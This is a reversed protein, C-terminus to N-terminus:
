ETKKMYQLKLQGIYTLSDQALTISDRTVTTTDSLKQPASLSGGEQIAKAYLTQAILALRDFHEPDFSNGAKRVYEEAKRWSLNAAIITLEGAYRSGTHKGIANIILAEVLESGTRYFKSDYWVQSLKNQNSYADNIQRLDSIYELSNLDDRYTFLNDDEPKVESAEKKDEKSKEETPKRLTSRIEEIKSKQSNYFAVRDVPSSGEPPNSNLISIMKTIVDISFDCISQSSGEAQKTVSNIDYSSKIHTFTERAKQYFIIQEDLNCLARHELLKAQYFELQGAIKVDHKIPNIKQIEKQLGSMSVDVQYEAGNFNPTTLYLDQDILLQASTVNFAADAIPTTEPNLDKDIESSTCGGLYIASSLIAASTIKKARQTLRNIFSCLTNKQTEAM